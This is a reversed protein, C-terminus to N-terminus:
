NARKALWERAQQAYQPAWQPSWVRFYAHMTLAHLVHGLEVRQEWDDPLPCAAAYADLFVGRGAPFADFIHEDLKGFDRFRDAYTAHEFDLACTIRGDRVLFNPLWLDGHTLAPRGAPEDLRDLAAGIGARVTEPDGIQDPDSGALVTELESEVAARLTPARGGGLVDGFEPGTIRHIRGVLDGLDRCLVERGAQDLDAWLDGAADGEQFEQVLVPGGVADDHPVLRRYRVVPVGHEAAVRASTMLRRLHEPDRNRQPVKVLLRGEDTEAVWQKSTYGALLPAVSEVRTAPCARRLVESILADSHDTMRDGTRERRCPPGAGPDARHRAPGADAGRVGDADRHRGPPGTGLGSRHCGAPGGRGDPVRGRRAVPGLAGDRRQRRRHAAPHLQHRVRARDPRRGELHRRHRPRPVRLVMNVGVIEPFRSQPFEAIALRFVPALFGEDLFPVDDLFERTWFKPLRYGLGVLLDEYLVGHSSGPKGNGIEDWYIDYLLQEGESLVPRRSLGQLWAGDVLNDAAGHFSRDQHAKGSDTVPAVPASAMMQYTRHMWDPFEDAVYREPLEWTFVPKEVQQAADLWYGVFAAARRIATARDHGAVLDHFLERTQAGSFVAPVEVAAPEPREPVAIPAAAIPAVREPRGLWTIWRRIVAIDEASFIKGMPGHIPTLATLFPSQGPAGAKIWNSRALAALLDRGSEPARDFFDDLPTGGLAATGHAHRASPTKRVVLDLMADEPARLANRCARELEARYLGVADRLVVAFAAFRQEGDVALGHETFQRLAAAVDDAVEAAPQRWSPEPYEVGPTEAAVARVCEEIWGPLAFLEGTLTPGAAALLEPTFRHPSHALALLLDPLLYAAEDLRLSEVHAKSGVDGSPQGLVRLLGDTVKQFRGPQGPARRYRHSLEGLRGGAALHCYPAQAFPALWVGDQDALVALHRVAAAAVVRVEDAELDAFAPAPDGLRGTLDELAGAPVAPREILADVFREARGVDGATPEITGLGLYLSALPGM